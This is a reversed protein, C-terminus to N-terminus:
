EGNDYSEAPREPLPEEFPWATEDV